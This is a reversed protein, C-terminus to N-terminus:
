GVCADRSGSGGDYAILAKAHNSRRGMGSKNDTWQVEAQVPGASPNKGGIPIVIVTSVADGSGSEPIRQSAERGCAKHSVTCVVSRAAPYFRLAITPLADSASFPFIGDGGRDM